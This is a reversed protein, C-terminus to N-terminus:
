GTWREVAKEYEEDLEDMKRYVDRPVKVNLLKEFTDMINRADEAIGLAVDRIAEESYTGKTLDIVIDMAYQYIKFLREVVENVTEAM